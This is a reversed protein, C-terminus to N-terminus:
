KGHLSSHCLMGFLALLCWWYFIFHGAVFVGAVMFSLPAFHLLALYACFVMSLTALLKIM